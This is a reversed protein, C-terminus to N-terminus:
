ENRKTEQWLVVKESFPALGDSFRIDSMDAIVEEYLKVGYGTEASGCLKVYYMTGDIYVRCECHDATTVIEYDEFYDGIVACAFLANQYCCSVYKPQEVRQGSQVWTTWDRVEEDNCSTLLFPLVLLLLIYRM